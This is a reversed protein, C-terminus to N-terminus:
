EGMGKMIQEVSLAKVAAITLRLGPANQEVQNVAAEVAARIAAEQSAIRHRALADIIHWADQEDGMCDIKKLLVQAAARDEQTVEIM